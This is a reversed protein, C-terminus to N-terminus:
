LDPGRYDIMPERKLVKGGTTIVLEVPSISYIVNANQALFEHDPTVRASTTLMADDSLRLGLYGYRGDADGCIVVLSGLTRGTAVATQSGSCRAGTNVFGKEDVAFAPRTATPPITPKAPAPPASAAVKSSSPAASPPVTEHTAWKVVAGVSVILSALLIASGGGLALRRRM